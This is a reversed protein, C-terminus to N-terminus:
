RPVDTETAIGEPNEPDLLAIGERVAKEAARDALRNGESGSHGKVWMLELTVSRNKLYDALHYVYEIATKRGQM